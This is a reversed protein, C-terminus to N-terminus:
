KKKRKIIEAFEIKPESHINIEEFPQESHITIEEIPEGTFSVYLQKFKINSIIKDISMDDGSDM